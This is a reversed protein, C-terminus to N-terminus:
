EAEKSLGLWTVRVQGMGFATHQGVGHLEALALWPLAKRLDGGLVITGYVGRLPIMHGTEGSAREGKPGRLLM